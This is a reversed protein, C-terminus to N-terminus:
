ILNKLSPSDKYICTSPNAPPIDVLEMSDRARRKSITAGQPQQKLMTNMPPPVAGQLENMVDGLTQM